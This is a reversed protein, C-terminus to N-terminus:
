VRHYIVDRKTDEKGERKEEEKGGLRGSNVVACAEPFYRTRM